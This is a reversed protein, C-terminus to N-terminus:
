CCRYQIKFCDCVGQHFKDLCFSNVLSDVTAEYSVQRVGQTQLRRTLSKLTAQNRKQDDYLGSRRYLSHCWIILINDHVCILLHSRASSSLLFCEIQFTVGDGSRKWLLHVLPLWLNRCSSTQMKCTVEQEVGFDQLAGKTQFLPIYLIM